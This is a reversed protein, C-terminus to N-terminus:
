LNCHLIPSGHQIQVQVIWLTPSVLHLRGGNGTSGLGSVCKPISKLLDLNSLADAATTSTRPYCTKTNANGGERGQAGQIAGWEWLIFCGCMLKQRLSRKMSSGLYCFM